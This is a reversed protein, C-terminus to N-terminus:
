LNKFVVKRGNIIINDIMLGRPPGDHDVGWESLFGHKEGIVGVVTLEVFAADGVDEVGDMESLLHGVLECGDDSQEVVDIATISEEDVTVALQITGHFGTAEATYTGPTMGDAMAGACGALLLAFTLLVATFRKM